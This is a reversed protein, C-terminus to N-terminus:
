RIGSFLPDAVIGSSVGLPRSPRVAQQDDGPVLIAGNESQSAVVVLDRGDEVACMHPLTSIVLVNGMVADEACDFVHVRQRMCSCTGTSLRDGVHPLRGLDLMAVKRKNGGTHPPHLTRLDRAM